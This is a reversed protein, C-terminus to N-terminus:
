FAVFPIVIGAIAIVVGVAITVYATGISTQPKKGPPPDKLGKVGEFAVAVGLLCIAGMAVWAM